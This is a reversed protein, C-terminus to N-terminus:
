TNKAQQVLADVNSQKPKLISALLADQDSQGDSATTDTAGTDAASTEEAAMQAFVDDVSNQKAEAFKAMIRAVEDEDITNESTGSSPVDAVSDNVEAEAAMQAFVDDVSNQKADAFQAMIRAVEDDMAPDGTGGAAPAGATDARDTAGSGTDATQEPAPEEAEVNKQLKTADYQYWKIIPKHRDYMM